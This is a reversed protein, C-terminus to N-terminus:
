FFNSFEVVDNFTLSNIKTGKETTEATTITLVDDTYRFNRVNEIVSEKTELGDNWMVIIINRM